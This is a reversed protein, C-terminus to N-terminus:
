KSEIVFTVIRPKGSFVYICGPIIGLVCLLFFSCTDSRLNSWYGSIKKTNSRENFLRQVISLADDSELDMSLRIHLEHTNKIKYQKRRIKELIRNLIIEAREEATIAPPRVPLPVDDVVCQLYPVPSSGSPNSYDVDPVDKSHLVDEEFEKGLYCGVDMEADRMM